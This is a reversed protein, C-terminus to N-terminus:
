IHIELLLCYTYPPYYNFHKIIPPSLFNLYNDQIYKNVNDELQNLDNYRFIKIQNM